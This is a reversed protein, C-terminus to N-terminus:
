NLLCVVADFTVFKPTFDGGQINIFAGKNDMQDSHTDLPFHANFAHAHSHAPVTRLAYWYNPASFVTICKSDHMVEYGLDKM